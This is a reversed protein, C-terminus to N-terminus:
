QCSNNTPRCACFPPSFTPRHWDCCPNAGQSCESYSLGECASAKCSKCPQPIETCCEVSTKVVSPADAVAPMTVSGLTTETTANPLLWETAFTGTPPWISADWAKPGITQVPYGPLKPNLGFIDRLMTLNQQGHKGGGEEGLEPNGSTHFHRERDRILRCGLKTFNTM